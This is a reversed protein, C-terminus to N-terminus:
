RNFALHCSIAEHWRNAPLSMIWVWTSEDISGLDTDSFADIAKCRTNTM